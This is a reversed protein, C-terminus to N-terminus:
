PEIVRNYIRVDDILGSFFTGAECNIGTGIYLGSFAGNLGSLPEADNAVEVGDVYLHRCSGDWVFGIRHWNGDNIFAESSLPDGEFRGLDKKLETMLYGEVSDMCLWSEGGMQSLVVQGPAGGKIWAFVSFQSYTYTPNLVFETSVYDDIGDLLIAGGIMGSDPQWAPGGILIGDCDSADNYAIDGQAEDFQWHAILTPDDVEEFLHEAMVKLDEIDFVGDGWPMPGIDYLSNDTGWHDIMICMDSCDVIGDGNFDIIPTIPSQWIDYGGLGGPRLSLFYLARGDASLASSLAGYETNIPLLVPDTWDDQMSARKTMWINWDDGRDSGFFLVCGDASIVAGSEWNSTNITQGLNVPESWPDDIAARTSVWLDPNGYGGSRYSTFYLSLGDLSICPYTDDTVSNIPSGLNVPEGWDDGTTARTTKWIDCGGLGGPRPPSYYDSFYLTLGDASISPCNEYVSSNVPPGLNEPEGWKDETTPRTSVWLDANGYGGARWSAFYMTLGDSSITPMVDWSSSNVMPGLNTPEGFTFDARAKRGGFVIAAVFVVLLLRIRYGNLRKM